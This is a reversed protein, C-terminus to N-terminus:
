KKSHLIIDKKNSVEISFELNGATNLLITNVNLKNYKAYSSFYFQEAFISQDFTNFYDKNCFFRKNRENLIFNLSKQSYDYISKSNGGFIAMNYFIEPTVSIENPIYDLFQKKNYEKYYISDDKYFVTFDFNNNIELPKFITMDLDLHIFNDFIQSALFYTM